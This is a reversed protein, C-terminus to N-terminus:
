DGTGAPVPVHAHSRRATESLQLALGAALPLWLEGVRCLLTAGIATAPPVGLRQLAVAISVEVFGIGQFVPAVLLFVMGVVYAILPVQIDSHHGVARLALFLMGVGAIKTTLLYTFPAILGRPAIEHQRIQVVFRLSRRPLRRVLWRPPKRQRLVLVLVAAMVAVLAVLGFTSGILLLSPEQVLLVPLLLLLFAANGIVSKISVALLADAPRVGRQRLKHVFVLMSSPGGVPTVTGVVIRHLHVGVLSHFRVAHGLRSLLAQYTVAILALIGGELVVISALWYPDAGRLTAVIHGLEQRQRLGFVIALSLILVLWLPAGYRRLFSGLSRILSRM